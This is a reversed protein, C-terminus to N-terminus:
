QAPPDFVYQEAYHQIHDACSFLLVYEARGDDNLAVSEYLASRKCGAYTCCQEQAYASQDIKVMWLKQEGLREPIPINAIVPEQEPSKLVDRMGSSVQVPDSECNQTLKGVYTITWSGGWRGTHSEITRVFSREVIGCTCGMARCRKCLNTIWPPEQQRLNGLAELYATMKALLSAFEYKIGWSYSVTATGRLTVSISVLRCAM